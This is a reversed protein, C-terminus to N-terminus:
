DVSEKLPTFSPTRRSPSANRSRHGTGLGMEVPAGLTLRERSDTRVNLGLGIGPAVVSPGAAGDINGQHRKPYNPNHRRSSGSRISDNDNDSSGSSLGGLEFDGPNPMDGDEMVREYRGQGNNKGKLFGFPLKNSLGAFGSSKRLKPSPPSSNGGKPRFPRLIKRFLNARRERGCLIIAIVVVVLLLIVFGPTKHHLNSKDLIKEHWSEPDNEVEVDTDLGPQKNPPTVLEQDHKSTPKKHVSIGGALQFDNRQGPKLVNSGFGVAPTSKYAPPVQSSAYLVMKGLTWSVETSDIKNVAQFPALYGEQKANGLLHKTTNTQQTSHMGQELGIRPIGIGEHLLNILWSAKFCVDAATSEDVKKGWKHKKIGKEITFWDQSCFEIVRQQYTRFDYAKDTHGMEFIEHTTHWYESVGVFHNVDFDIAPVHRGNFLCPPDNCSENKGILPLAQAVCEKFKGTGILPAPLDVGKDPKEKLGQPLCPDPIEKAKSTHVSDVLAQLYRRRAENVGYGLWTTVFVKYESPGGDLTRLRLLQLDSAHKRAESPSPAFAIQASAGGLDLFGYTHHGNGHKHDKPNDFSGLLYNAAIWGYLGETEGPIVQIHLGCDPLQFNTHKRAYACVEQLIAERQIKPLLRMGATAMLFIPTTKVDEKPIQELAHDLLEQLHDSGVAHPDEGFTSIGPKMKKTWKKETELVPLHHLEKKNAKLRAKASDLWRYIHLRTGSSGADLIVGYKWKGM